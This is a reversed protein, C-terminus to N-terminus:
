WESLLHFPIQAFDVILLTIKGAFCVFGNIQVSNFNKLDDFNPNKSNLYRVLEYLLQFVGFIPSFSQMKRTKITLKQAFKM